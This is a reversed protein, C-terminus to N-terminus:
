ITNSDTIASQLANGHPFGSGAVRTQAANM